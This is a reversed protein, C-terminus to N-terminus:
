KDRTKWHYDVAQERSKDFFHSSDNSILLYNQYPIFQDKFYDDQSLRYFSVLLYTIIFLALMLRNLIKSFSYIVLTALCVFSPLFYEDLRSSITGFRGIYVDLFIMFVIIREIYVYSSEFLKNNILHKKRNFYLAIIIVKFLLSFTIVPSINAPTTYTLLKETYSNHMVLSIAEILMEIPYIGLVALLFGPVLLCKQLRVNKEKMMIPMILMLVASIHFTSAILVCIYYQYHKNNILYYFGMYFLSVALVQRIMDVNFVPSICFYFALAFVPYPSIKRFFVNLVILSFLTICSVFVWFSIGTLSLLLSILQYGPELALTITGGNFFDRYLLWDVGVEYRFGIIVLILLTSAYCLLKTSGKTGVNTLGLFLLSSIFFYYITM